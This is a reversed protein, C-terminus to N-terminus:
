WVTRIGASRLRGDRTVLDAKLHIATAAIIRDPMDPVDSRKIKQVALAVFTDLPAVRTAASDALADELRQLAALPLKGKECPYVIEVLTIASIYVDERNREANQILTRATLSLEPSGSLYWIVAQTDLVLAMLFCGESFAAM